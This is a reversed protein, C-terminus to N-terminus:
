LRIPGSAGAVQYVRLEYGGELGRLLAIKTGAGNVYVRAPPPIRMRDVGRQVYVAEGRVRLVCDAYRLARAQASLVMHGGSPLHALVYSLPGTTKSLQTFCEPLASLAWPADGSFSGAKRASLPPKQVPKPPVTAYVSAIKLRLRDRNAFGAVIAVGM